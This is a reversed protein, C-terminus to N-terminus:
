GRRKTKRKKIIYRSSQKKPNRTKFGKALIGSKSTPHRGGSSRGEGGGMPHDVPNKAVGRVRPRKGKWRSRGAKGDVTADHAINSVQGLTAYASSLILRVEGSPMRIHAYKGERALLQAGAGASRVLAGGRGPELEINHIATGLPINSLPLANGTILPADQGSELVDGVKLGDPALIYRKEGDEYVVLAIWASRNPDYEISRVKAKISHKDRKFDIIRYKRKIRGGRHASTIRGNSNRGGRGPLYKTLSKESKKQTIMSFDPSRYFRRSSTVPRSSREKM